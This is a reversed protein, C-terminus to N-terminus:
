VVRQLRTYCKITILSGKFEVVTVRAWTMEIGLESNIFSEEMLSPIGSLVAAVGEVSRRGNAYAPNFLVGNQSLETLFPTVKPSLYESSLSEVMVIVVNLKEPQIKAATFLSPELNLLKLMENEKFYHVREIQDRGVSKIFTFGSNLVLQHAFPHDIVKANIFSIPKSQTGGRGFLVALGIFLFSFFFKNSIKQVNREKRLIEFSLYFYIALVVLALIFVQYFELWNSTKGEGILYLSSVTFRRGVFNILVIDAITFIMLVAHGMVLLVTLILRLIRPGWLWLIMLIACLPGAIALDFLMGTGITLFLNSATLSKLQSYNWIYFFIRLAFYLVVHLFLLNGFDKFTGKAEQKVDSLKTFIM